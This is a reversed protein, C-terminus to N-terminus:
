IEVGVITHMESFIGGVEVIQCGDICKGHLHYISYVNKIHGLPDTHWQM